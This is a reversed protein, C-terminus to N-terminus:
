MKLPRFNDRRTSIHLYKILCTFIANDNQEQLHYNSVMHLPADIPGWISELNYRGATASLFCHFSQM